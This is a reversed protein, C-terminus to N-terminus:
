RLADKRQMDTERLLISSSWLVRTASAWYMAGEKEMIQIERFSDDRLFAMLRHFLRPNDYMDLVMRDLSRWHALMRSLGYHSLTKGRKMVPLIDGILDSTYALEQETAANDVVLPKARLLKLRLHRATLM